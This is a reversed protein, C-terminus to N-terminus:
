EKKIEVMKSGCWPCYPTPMAKKAWDRPAQCRCFSCAWSPKVGNDPVWVAKNVNERDCESCRHVSVGLDVTLHNKPKGKFARVAAKIRDKLTLRKVENM